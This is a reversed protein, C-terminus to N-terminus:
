TMESINVFSNTVEWVWVNEKGEATVRCIARKSRTHYLSYGHTLQQRHRGCTYMLLVLFCFLVYTMLRKFDHNFHITEKIMWFTETLCNFSHRATDKVAPNNKGIKQLGLPPLIPKLTKILICQWILFTLSISRGGVM